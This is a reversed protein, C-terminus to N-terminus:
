ESEGLAAVDNAHSKFVAVTTYSIDNFNAKLSPVGVYVFYSGPVPIALEAEYVGDGVPKAPTVTLGYMPARFHRVVVDNLDTFLEGTAPDTLRFRLTMPEGAEVNENGSLYEIEVPPLDPRINPNLEAEMTFCHLFRPTENLFAVEFTGAAPVKITSAYVGPEIQKLARNAIQVASPNHGYNRFAGMPANMGEMYYYVTADAPSVVFIAAEQPTPSMADALALNRAKSPALTGAAFENVIIEAGRSLEQLNLMSVRESELSRIYAFTASVHVQFPKDEVPVRHPIDNSSADIVYVLNEAPNVLIGWRGDESFRMPGLGPDADVQAVQQRTRADIVTVTGAEGDAVYLSNSLSSYALSIPTPGTAIDTIKTLTEIDIISVTGSFRNSVFATRSDDSIVIEHHGQGTEITAAIDGTAVDIVTVTGPEEVPLNNGVWLYREDPQLVTRMPMTGADVNRTVKFTDLDIIAVRSARPMTVFLTKDDVTKAWDAGPRELPINAYLSTIGTIGVVPDIVSITADSNLALLYYSNLDIMPRMGVLGQLYQAVRPQCELATGQKQGEPTQTLDIWVGPYIGPLPEGDEAGSLRFEVNAFDGVRLTDRGTDLPTVSFDVRVGNRTITAQNVPEGQPPGMEGQSRSPAAVGIASLALAAMLLPKYYLTTSFQSVKM